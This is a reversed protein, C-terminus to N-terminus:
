NGNDQNNIRECHKCIKKAVPFKGVMQLGGGNRESSVRSVRLGCLTDQGGRQVLHYVETTLKIAYMAVVETVPGPRNVVHRLEGTLMENMLWSRNEYLIATWDRRKIREAIM